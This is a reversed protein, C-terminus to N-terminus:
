DTVTIKGNHTSLKILNKGDGFFLSNKDTHDLINAKGNAISVEFRANTPKKESQINIQGNNTEFDIPRDLSSTKLMISGNHSEGVLNGEVNTLSISGNSVKIKVTKSVVNKMGIRGNQAETTIASGEIGSLEIKGNNTQGFFNDAKLNEIQMTGNNNHGHFNAASLNEIHITGNNNQVKLNDYMKEPVRIKLKFGRPHFGFNFLKKSQYNMKVSLTSEGVNTSFQYKTNSGTLTVKTKAEDTPFIEIRANDANVDINTFQSEEIVKDELVREEKYVSKFTAVAGIIGAVLLILAVVSIKKINIM